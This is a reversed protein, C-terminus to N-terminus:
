EKKDKKKFKDLKKNIIVNGLVGNIFGPSADTGYEKALEVAEDVVVKFPTDSVIILEFIAIRLISLDIKNIQNIPWSPAAQVIEQDIEKIESVIKKGLETQPGTKPHFEWAFIDQMAAVRKLHRPDQSTKM